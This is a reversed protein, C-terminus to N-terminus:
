CEAELYRELRQAAETYAVQHERYTRADAKTGDYDAEALVEDLARASEALERAAARPEPPAVEVLEDAREILAEFAVEIEDATAQDGFALFPDNRSLRDLRNCFAAADGADDGDGGCAGLLLLAVALIARPRM